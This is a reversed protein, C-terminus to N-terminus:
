YLVPMRRHRMSIMCVYTHLYVPLTCLLIYMHIYIYVTVGRGHDVWRRKSGSHVTNEQTKAIDSDSVSISEAYISRPGNLGKGRGNVGGLLLGSNESYMNLLPWYM